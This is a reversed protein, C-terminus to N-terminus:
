PTDCRCRIKNEATELVPLRDELPCCYRFDGYVVYWRTCVTRGLPIDNCKQIRSKFCSDSVPAKGLRMGQFANRLSEPMVNLIGLLHPCMEDSLIPPSSVDELNEFDTANDFTGNTAQNITGNFTSNQLEEIEEGVLEWETYGYVDTVNEQELVSSEPVPDIVSKALGQRWLFVTFLLVIIMAFTLNFKSCM